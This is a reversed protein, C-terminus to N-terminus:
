EAPDGCSGRTPPPPSMVILAVLREPGPNRMSHVVGAPAIAIDGPDVPSSEDGITVEGQGELVVYLKDRDCHSHPEHQQGPEFSNLGTFLHDGRGLDSKGMKDARFEARRAAQRIIM